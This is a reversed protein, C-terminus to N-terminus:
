VEWSMQGTEEVLREADKKKIGLATLRSVASFWGITGFSYSELRKIQNDTLNEFDIM